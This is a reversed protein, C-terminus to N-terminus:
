GQSQQDASTWGDPVRSVFRTRLQLYERYDLAGNDTDWSHYELAFFDGGNDVPLETGKYLINSFFNSVGEKM